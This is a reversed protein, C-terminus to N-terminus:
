RVKAKMLKKTVATSGANMAAASATLAALRVFQAVSQNTAMAAEKIIDLEDSAVRSQVVHDLTTDHRTRAPM